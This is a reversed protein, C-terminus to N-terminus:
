GKGEKLIGVVSAGVDIGAAKGLQKMSEYTQVAIGQQECLQRIHSVVRMDADQAVYLCDLRGEELAKQTQKIGIVKDKRKLADQM